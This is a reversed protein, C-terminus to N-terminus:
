EHIVGKTLGDKGFIVIDFTRDRQEREQYPMMEIEGAMQIARSYAAEKYEDKLWNVTFDLHQRLDLAAYSMDSVLDRLQQWSMDNPHPM